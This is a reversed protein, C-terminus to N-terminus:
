LNVPAQRKKGCFCAAMKEVLINRFKNNFLCYIVFNFSLNCILLFKCVVLSYKYTLMHECTNRASETSSCMMSQIINVVLNPFQCVFFFFVVTVLMLTTNRSKASNLTHTKNTNSSVASHRAALSSINRKVPSNKKDSNLINTDNVASLSRPKRNPSMKNGINPQSKTRESTRPSAPMVLSDTGTATAAVAATIDLLHRKQHQQQQKLPSDAASENSESITQDANNVVVALAEDPLPTAPALLNVTANINPNSDTRQQQTSSHQLSRMQDTRRYISLRSRRKNATVIKVLLYSNTIILISFPLIYVVPLYLWFHVVRNFIPHQGISTYTLYGDTYTFKLWYPICYVGSVVYVALVNLRARRCESKRQRSSNNKATSFYICVFQNTSVCVTLFISVVQFTNIIPYFYPYFFSIVQLLSTYHYFASLEYAVSNVLLGLLALFGSICQSALFINTSIRMKADNLVSFSVLNGVIGIAIVLLSIWALTLRIAYYFRLHELRIASAQDDGGSGGSGGRGVSAAGSSVAESEDMEDQLLSTDNSVVAAITSVAVTSLMEWSTANVDYVFRVSTNFLQQYQGVTDDGYAPNTFFHSM